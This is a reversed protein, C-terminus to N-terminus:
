PSAENVLTEIEGLLRMIEEEHGRMSAILDKPDAHEPGAKTNPNKRDLNYGSEIIDAASVQWAQGGEERAAWDRWRYPVDITPQYSEMM